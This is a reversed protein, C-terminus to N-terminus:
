TAVPVALLAAAQKLHADLTAQARDREGTLEAIRADHYDLTGLTVGPAVFLTGNRLLQLQRRLNQDDPENAIAQEIDKEKALWAARQAEADALRRQADALDDPANMLGSICRQTTDYDRRYTARENDSRADRGDGLATLRARLKALTDSITPTATATTTAM